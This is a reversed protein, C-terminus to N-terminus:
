LKAIYNDKEMNNQKDLWSLYAFIDLPLLQYIMERLLGDLPHFFFFFHLRSPRITVRSASANFGSNTDHSIVAKIFSCICRGGNKKDLILVQRIANLLSENKQRSFILYEEQITNQLLMFITLHKNFITEFHEISNTM